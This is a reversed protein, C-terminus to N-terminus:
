VSPNWIERVYRGVAALDELKAEAEARTIRLGVEFARLLSGHVDKAMYRGDGCIYIHAGEEVLRAVATAQPSSCSVVLRPLVYVGIAVHTHPPKSVSDSSSHQVEFVGLMWM